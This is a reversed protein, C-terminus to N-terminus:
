YSRWKDQELQYLDQNAVDLTQDSEKNRLLEFREIPFNYEHSSSSVPDPFLKRFLNKGRRTMQDYNYLRRVVFKIHKSDFCIDLLGAIFSFNFLNSFM